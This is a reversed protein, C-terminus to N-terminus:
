SPSGGNEPLNGGLVVSAPPLQCSREQYQWKYARKDRRMHELKADAKGSLNLFAINPKVGSLFSTSTHQTDPHM